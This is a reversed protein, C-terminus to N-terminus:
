ADTKTFLKVSGSRINGELDSIYFHESGFQEKYLCELTIKYGESLRYKKESIKCPVLVPKDTSSRYKIFLASRIPLMEVMFLVDELNKGQLTKKLDM